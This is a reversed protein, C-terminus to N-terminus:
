TWTDKRDYSNLDGRPYYFEIKSASFCLKNEAKKIDQESGIFDANYLFDNFVPLGIWALHCRVQHKFGKTIKCEVKCAEAKVSLIRVQTTYLEKKGLKKLAAPNSAQTVPRTQSNKQGYHRFFSKVEFADDTKINDINFDPVPFGELRSFNLRQIQCEAQYFKSFRNELQENQMYDYFEQTKALLLLGSTQTDLRHLLGHEIEKKGKVSLIEPFSKSAKILANETDSLSIPASPLGAPKDVIVFPKGDTNLFKLNQEICM